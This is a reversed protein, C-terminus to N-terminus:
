KPGAQEGSVIFHIKSVENIDAGAITAILRADKPLTLLLGTNARVRGTSSLALGTGFYDDDQPVATDDVGDSYKFGLKCTVSANTANEILISADDLRMGGPLPGLDVVDAQVVATADDSNLAVGSANTELYYAFSSANGFPVAGGFQRGRKNDLKITAM